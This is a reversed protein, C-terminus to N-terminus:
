MFNSYTHKTTSGTALMTYLRHYNSSHTATTFHYPLSFQIARLISQGMAVQDLLFLENAHRPDCAPRRPSLGSVAHAM